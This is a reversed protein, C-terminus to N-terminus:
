TLVRLEISPYLARFMVARLVFAETVTAKSKVDECVTKGNEIYSFDPKYGLRRGNDHKVERGEILFPYFPEVVLADIQGARFLLGLQDCRGAERKSAHVHGHNCPTRKANYKGRRIM